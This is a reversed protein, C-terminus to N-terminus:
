LNNTFNRTIKKIVEIIPILQVTVVVVVIDDSLVVLLVEDTYHDNINFEM